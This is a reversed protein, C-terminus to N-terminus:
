IAAGQAAQSKRAAKRAPLFTEEVWRTTVGGAAFDPEALVAQHFAATTTVGEVKLDSLAATMKAIAEARTPAHVILKGIMSDYYPPVTYGQHCHSDLRVGEGAPAKWTTILGPRSMFNKDPDEANLRCEIAHGNM